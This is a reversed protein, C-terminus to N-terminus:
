GARVYVAFQRSETAITALRLLVYRWHNHHSFYLEGLIGIFPLAVKLAPELPLWPAPWFTCWGRFRASSKRKGKGVALSQLVSLMWWLAMIIFMSGPLM